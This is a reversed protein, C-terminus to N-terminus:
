DGNENKRDNEASSKTPFIAYFTNFQSYQVQVPWMMLNTRINLLHVDLPHSVRLCANFKYRSAKTEFKNQLCLWAM